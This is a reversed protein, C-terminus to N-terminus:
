DDMAPKLLPPFALPLPTASPQRYNLTFAYDIEWPALRSAPTSSLGLWLPQRGKSPWLQIRLFPSAQNPTGLPDLPIIRGLRQNADSLDLFPRNSREEVIAQALSEDVGPITQLLEKPATNINHLQGSRTTILPLMRYLNDGLVQGDLLNFVQGPSIMLRQPPPALGQNTYDSSVAGNLRRVDDKDTYDQLQDLFREAQQLSLNQQQFLQIWRERDPVLLSLLSGEDQLAFISHGLGRYAQGDVRLHPLTNIDINQLDNTFPDLSNNKETASPTQLLYANRLLPRTAVIHLVTALTADSDLQEQLRQRLEFTQETRREAYSAIFATVLSLVMLLGLTAILAFGGQRQAAQATLALAPVGPKEQLAPSGTQDPQYACDTASLKEPLKESSPRIHPARSPNM